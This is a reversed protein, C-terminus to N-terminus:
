QILGEHCQVSSASQALSIMIDTWQEFARKTNCTIWVYLTMMLTCLGVEQHYHLRPPRLWCHCLLWTAQWVSPLNNERLETWNTKRDTDGAKSDHSTTANIFVSTSIYMWVTPKGIHCLHSFDIWHITYFFTKNCIDQHKHELNIMSKSIPSFLTNLEAPLLYELYFTTSVSVMHFLVPELQQLLCKFSFFVNQLQKKNCPIHHYVRILFKNVPSVLNLTLQNIQVWFFLHQATNNQSLSKFHRKMIMLTTHPTGNSNCM